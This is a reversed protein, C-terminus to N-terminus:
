NIYKDFDKSGENISIASLSSNKEYKKIKNNKFSKMSKIEIFPSKKKKPSNKINKRMQSPELGHASDYRLIKKTFIFSDTHGLGKKILIDKMKDFQIYIKLSEALDTYKLKEKMLFDMEKRQKKYKENCWCLYIKIVDWTNIRKRVYNNTIRNKITLNNHSLSLQKDRNMFRILKFQAQKPKSTGRTLGMLDDDNEHTLYKPKYDFLVNIIEIDMLKLQPFYLIIYAIVCQICFIGSVSAGVEQIKIYRRQIIEKSMASCVYITSLFQKNNDILNIDNFTNVLKIVNKKKFNDFIINENSAFDLGGFYTYIYKNLENDLRLYYSTLETSIPNSFDEANISNTTYFIQLWADQVKENITEESQCIINSDTSNKCKSIYISLTAYFDNSYRGGIILENKSHKFCYHLSIDNTNYSDEQNLKQYINKFTSCNVTDLNLITNILNGENNRYIISYTPIITIIKPDILPSHYKDRIMISFLLQETNLTINKGKLLDIKSYSITPEIRLFLRILNYILLIGCLINIFLSIFVSIYSHQRKEGKFEHTFIIYFYDQFKLTEYIHKM